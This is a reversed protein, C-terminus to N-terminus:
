QWPPASRPEQGPQPKMGKLPYLQEGWSFLQWRLIIMIRMGKGNDSGRRWSVNRRSWQKATKLSKWGKCARKVDRVWGFLRTQVCVVNVIENIGLITKNIPTLSSKSLHLLTYCTAVSVNFGTSISEPNLKPLHIWPAAKIVHLPYM